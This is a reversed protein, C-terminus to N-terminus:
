VINATGFVVRGIGAADAAIGVATFGAKRMLEAVAEGQAAGVEFMLVGGNKLSLTYNKIIARYFDLGDKGGALATEPEFTVERQLEDMEKETIYPPNSVILDYKKDGCDGVFVDGDVVAANKVENKVINKECFRMAEPYKELLTVKANPNKLALTIGICGSGACLDLIDAAPRDKLFELAKDVLTETDQRPILVGVGVEFSLGYFDWEGLIYQLPYHITRQKIMVTLLNQQFQSLRENYRTLIQNNTFGTVKKIIQKAEFITDEIGAKLLQKKCDNYAEFITQTSM